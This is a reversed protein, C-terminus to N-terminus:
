LLGLWILFRATLPEEPFVVGKLIWRVLYFLMEVPFLTGLAIIGVLVAFLRKLIKM